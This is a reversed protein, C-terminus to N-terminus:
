LNGDAITKTRQASKLSPALELAIGAMKSAEAFNKKKLEEAATRDIVSITKSKLGGVESLQSATFTKEFSQLKSIGDKACLGNGSALCTKVEKSFSDFALSGLRQQYSASMVPNLKGLALIRIANNFDKQAMEPETPGASVASAIINSLLAEILAQSSSGGTITGMMLQNAQEARNEATLSIGWGAAMSAIAFSGAEGEWGAVSKLDSLVTTTEAFKGNNFSSYAKGLIRENATLKNFETFTFYISGAVAGLGIILLAAKIFKSMDPLVIPKRERKKKERKAKKDTDLGMDERVEDESLLAEEDGGADAAKQPTTMSLPKPAPFDDEDDHLIEEEGNDEAAKALAEYDIEEEAGGVEKEDQAMATEGSDTKQYEHTDEILIEEANDSEDQSEENDTEAAPEVEANIKDISDELSEALGPEVLTDAPFIEDSHESAGSVIDDMENAVSEITNGTSASSESLIENDIEEAEHMKLEAVLDGTDLSDMSNADNRVTFEPLDEEEEVPSPPLIELDSKKPAKEVPAVVPITGTKMNRMVIDQLSVYTSSSSIPNVPAEDMEDLSTIQPPAPAYEEDEEILEKIVELQVKIDTFLTEYSTLLVDDVEPGGGMLIERPYLALADNLLKEAEKIEGRDLLGKAKNYHTLSKQFRDIIDMNFDRMKVTVSKRFADTEGYIKFYLIM